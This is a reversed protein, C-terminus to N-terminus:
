TNTPLLGATPKPLGPLVAIQLEFVSVKGTDDVAVLGGPVM